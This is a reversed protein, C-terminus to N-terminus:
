RRTPTCSRCASRTPSTSSPSRSSRDHQGQDTRGGGRAPVSAAASLGHARARHPPRREVPARRADAGRARRALHRRVRADSLGLVSGVAERAPVRLPDHRDAGRGFAADRRDGLRALRAFGGAVRLESDAATRRAADQLPVGLGVAGHLSARQQHGAASHQHRGAVNLEGSKFEAVFELEKATFDRLVEIAACRVNRARCRAGPPRRCPSLSRCRAAM